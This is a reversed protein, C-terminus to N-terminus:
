WEESILQSISIQNLESGDDPRAEGGSFTQFSQRGRKHSWPWASEEVILHHKTKTKKSQSDKCTNKHWDSQWTITDCSLHIDKPLVICECWLYINKILERRKGQKDLKTVFCHSMNGTVHELQEDTVPFMQLPQILSKWLFNNLYWSFQM